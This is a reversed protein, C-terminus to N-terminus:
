APVGFQEIHDFVRQQITALSPNGKFTEGIHEKAWSKLAAADM